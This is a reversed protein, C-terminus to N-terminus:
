EWGSLFRMLDEGWFLYALAGVSLFPGFPIATTRWIGKRWQGTALLSLLGGMTGLAASIFIVLPLSKIGLFAGILALLKVDGGGMGQQSGDHRWRSFFEYSKRIIQFLLAGLLAGALAELFTHYPLILSLGLGLGIGPLTIADPLWGYQLDLVTLVILAATFPAYTFLVPSHPFKAWLGLALLGGAL